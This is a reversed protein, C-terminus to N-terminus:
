MVLCNKFKLTIFTGIWLLLQKAKILRTIIISNDSILNKIIKLFHETNVSVSYTSNLISTSILHRIDHMILPCFKTIASETSALLDPVGLKM